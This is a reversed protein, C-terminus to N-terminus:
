GIFKKIKKLLVEPDYPKLIGDDAGTESIKKKLDRGTVTFLVVPIKKLKEDAKLKKCLAEGRGGLLLLDLLILDPKEKIIAASAKQVSSAELVEYGAKKLRIRTLYLIDKEDEVLLITKGM